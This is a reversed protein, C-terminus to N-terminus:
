RRLKRVGAYAGGVLAVLLCASAEPVAATITLNVQQATSTDIAFALGSALAPLSGLNLGNDALLGTYNILRWSQGLSAGAFSGPTTETVNLTGDLTLAGVNDLLDNNLGGPTMVGGNLDYNLTAPATFVVAGGGMLITGPAPGPLAGPSLTGGAAASFSLNGNLNLSGSVTGGDVNVNGSIKGTGTLTGGSNVAVAGTGTGSGSANTVALTGGNIETGGAYAVGTASSLTLTGTNASALVVKINSHNAINPLNTTNAASGLPGSYATAASGNITLTSTTAQTNVIGNQAGTTAGSALSAVTQNKGNLDLSGSPTAGLGFSLGTTTPLANDVGLKQVGSAATLFKTNGTYTNNNSLTLVGAGGSVGLGFTVTGNGSIVGTMNVTAGNLVGIWGEFAGSLNGTNLNINNPVDGHNGAVNFDV